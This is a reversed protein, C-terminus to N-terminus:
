AHAGNVDAAAAELAQRLLTDDVAHALYNLLFADFLRRDTPDLAALLAAYTELPSTM